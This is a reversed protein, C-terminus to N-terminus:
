FFSQKVAILPVWIHGSWFCPYSNQDIEEHIIHIKFLKKPGAMNPQPRTDAPLKKEFCHNKMGSVAPVVRM